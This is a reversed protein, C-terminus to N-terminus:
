FQFYLFESVQSMGLIATTAIISVTIAWGPSIRWQFREWFKKFPQDAPRVHADIAPKIRALWQQTNPCCWLITLWFVIWVAGTYYETTIYGGDFRFGVNM